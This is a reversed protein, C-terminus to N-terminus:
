QAMMQQMQSALEDIEKDIAEEEEALEDIMRQLRQSEKFAVHKEEQKVKFKRSKPSPSSNTKGKGGMGKWPGEVGDMMKLAGDWGNAVRDKIGSLGGDSRMDGMERRGEEIKMRTPGQNESRGPTHHPSGAKIFHANALQQANGNQYANTSQHANTMQYGNDKAGYGKSGPALYWASNELQGAAAAAQFKIKEEEVSREREGKQQWLHELADRIQGEVLPQIREGKFNTTREDLEEFGLHRWLSFPIALNEFSFAQGSSQAKSTQHRIYESFTPHSLEFDIMIDIQDPSWALKDSSSFVGLHHNMIMPANPNSFDM